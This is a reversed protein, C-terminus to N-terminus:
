PAHPSFAPIVGELSNDWKYIPPPKLCTKNEM